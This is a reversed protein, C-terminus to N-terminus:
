KEKGKMRYFIVNGQKYCNLGRWKCLQTAVNIRVYGPMGQGFIVPFAVICKDCAAILCISGCEFVLM